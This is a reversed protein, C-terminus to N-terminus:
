TFHLTLFPEFYTRFRQAHGTDRWITALELHTPSREIRLIQKVINQFWTGNMAAIQLKLFEPNTM